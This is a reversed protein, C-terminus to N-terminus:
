DHTSNRPSALGVDSMDCVKSEVGTGHEHVCCSHGTMLCQPRGRGFRIWVKVGCVRRLGDMWGDMWEVSESLVSEKVWGDM